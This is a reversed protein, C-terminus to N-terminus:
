VSVEVNVDRSVTLAATNPAPFELLDNGNNKDGVIVRADPAEPEDLVIDNDDFQNVSGDNVIEIVNFGFRGGDIVAPSEFTSGDIELTSTDTVALKGTIDLAM